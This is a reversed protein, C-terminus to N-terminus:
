FAIGLGAGPYWHNLPYEPVFIFQRGSVTAFNALAQTCHANDGIIVSDEKLNKAITHYEKSEYNPSHDSDNIFLGITQNIKELSQISDGYLITAFESIDLDKLLFGANPNIDTGIYRGPFGESSNKRIAECLVVSGLGKDIGTEIILEPKLVRAMAYWGIRRGFKCDDSVHRFKSKRASQSIITKLGQNHEIEDFYELILAVNTDTAVAIAHALYLKSRETIEYTYNTDEKSSFGWKLIQGYKPNFYGTARYIRRFFNILRSKIILSGVKRFINKSKM